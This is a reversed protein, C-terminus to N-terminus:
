EEIVKKLRKKVESIAQDYPITKRTLKKMDREYEKKSPFKLKKEIAKQNVLKANLEVGKKLLFWVDYLDRGKNRSLLASIKEALIEREDLALVLFSKPTEPYESEILQWKPKLKIGTRKGADIRIKNLSNSEGNYLPGKFRIECTFTNKFLEQKKFSSKIGLKNIKKLTSAVQKQFKNPSTKLNFDLDESFRNLGFLYKLCTGGKFVAEESDQYYNFLFLKLLYDKEQQYLTLNSKEAEKKLAEKSIM